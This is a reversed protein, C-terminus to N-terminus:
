VSKQFHSVNKMQENFALLWQLITKRIVKIVHKVNKNLM